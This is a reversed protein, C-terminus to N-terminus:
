SIPGPLIKFPIIFFIFPSISTIFTELISSKAFKYHLIKGLSRTTKPSKKLKKKKKTLLHHPNSTKIFTEIQSFSNEKKM